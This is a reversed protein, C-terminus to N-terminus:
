YNWPEGAQRVIEEGAITSGRSSRNSDRTTFTVLIAAEIVMNARYRNSHHDTTHM